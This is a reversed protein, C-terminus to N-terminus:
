GFKEKPSMGQITQNQVQQKWSPDKLLYKQKSKLYLRDQMCCGESHSPVEFHHRRHHGWEDRLCQENIVIAEHILDEEDLNSIIWVSVGKSRLSILAAVFWRRGASAISLPYRGRKDAAAVDIDEVTLLKKTMTIESGEEIRDPCAALWLPSRGLDDQCNVDVDPRALLTDVVAMRRNVVAISLPTQGNRAKHNPDMTKSLILSVLDAEGGRAVLWLPSEGDDDQADPNVVKSLLMSVVAKHGFKVAYLLPTRGLVDKADPDVDTLLLASVVAERGNEAAYSLPTRGYCDKVSPDAGESLLMSVVPGHGHNVAYFLSTQGYEDRDDVSLSSQSILLKVVAQLGRRIASYRLPRGEWDRSECHIDGNALLCCVVADPGKSIAWTLFNENKRLNIPRLKIMAEVAAQQYDKGDGLQINRVDCANQIRFVINLIVRLTDNSIKTDMLAINLLSHHSKSELYVEVNSKWSDVSRNEWKFQSQLLNRYNKKTFIYIKNALFSFRRVEFKEFLNHLRIWDNIISTRLFDEQSVCEQEAIDAHSLLNQTAYQLFPFRESIRTRLNKADDSSAVPLDMGVPLCDSIDIRMYELCCQKLREHSQGPKLEAKLKNFGNKGVLFDRVSEHIFQVNQVKTKTTEALGKSCSLIFREMDEVNIADPTALTLEEADTGSLIGYYLEERKLPRTAYLIWQLCLILQDVREQDRTLIDEFLKDLGDPIENLRRRLAHVRGHDYEKNLIKVVLAVWLFVGSARNRIEEKITECQKGKGANLESDLYKTIDQNHGEQGELTLEIGHRISIYPYHRSSLCAQFNIQSSIVIEGLEELFTVLDRIQSEDCEDLADIFCILQRQGLKRFADIFLTQLEIIKWDYLEGDQLRTFKPWSVHTQLDQYSQLLQLLLSRYMGVTSRELEDGRANFFFSIVKAGKRTRKVNQVAFKVLTSKGCGPKGKIWFFGHHHQLKSIDFWDQYEERHLLWQCTKSHATKITSYRSDLTPFWLTDLFAKRQQDDPIM